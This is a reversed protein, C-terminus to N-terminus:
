QEYEDLHEAEYARHDEYQAERDALIALGAVAVDVATAAEQESAEQEAPKVVAVDTEVIPRHEDDEERAQREGALWEEATVRDAEEDVPRGRAALEDVARQAAERTAATEAYWLGRAEDILELEAREAELAALQEDATGSLAVDNREMDARLSIEHLRDGVWPPAWAEEREYARVRVLLAGDSLEAEERDAEPRGLARWAAHWAAHAETEGAKPAPGIAREEDEEGRLERYAAVRGARNEWRWRDLGSQPPEDLAEVAWRPRSLAAERGLDVARQDALEALQELRVQWAGGIPPVRARFDDAEPAAGRTAESIRYHLVSAANVAGDLSRASVVSRVTEKPDLGALEVSRLLRGLAGGADAALRAREDATLLGDATLEDFMREVRGAQALNVADTFLEILTRVSRASEASEELIALAAQETDAREVVQALVSLPTRREAVDGAPADPAASVTEVYATNRVQGRTLGPYLASLDTGPTAVFHGTDVTQGQAGHGTVAYGLALHKAVYDAPLVIRADPQGLPSVTLRGDATDIVRYLERNIPGRPNGMWGRLPRGNLRGQVIDGRGARVGQLGLEVTRLDDVVGRRVLEARCADSLKAAEDNTNVILLSRMGSVTDGLWGRMAKWTTMEASGGDILRGHRDYDLLAAQDGSRLRLSAPGEWGSRFRHVESLEYALGSSAVLEFAGGAGVAALQRHDGTLLLKAGSEEVASRIADLHATNAMGSEDVIVLDASGLRQRGVERQALFQAINVAELGEGRLVETAIESAALGIVHGGSLERWADNLVGVTWSKGAGAPGVLAEIRAGSTLVGLVAARQDAHLEAAEITREADARTFAIAGRRVAAERLAREAALQDPMAYRSSGPQEYVSRGNALRLDEPVEAAVQEDLRVAGAYGVPSIESAALARDTLTEILERVEAAPVGLRDPLAGGIERALDGRTWGSRKAQVAALATEMVRTPSFPSPDSPRASLAAEAVETLQSGVHAQLEANFRDLMEGRLEGDHSKAKRTAFTARRMLRDRELANPERGVRTSFEKCLKEAKESIKRRRVSFTDLIDQRIGLIERAKGDPRRAFEVGLTRSLHEEMTREGIAAAAGREAYMIKADITRFQGDSCEVRNLIANHIHLQPQNERSTHQFFSATVFGHADVWRGAAGGHHGVRSYGARDQLYDLMRRNGEWIAAEVARRHTAWHAALEPTTAQLEMRHFATHLVSVSKQVSFTADHFMVSKRVLKAARLHLLEAREPTANPERELLRALHSEADMFRGPRDGLTAAEGWSDRDRFREDRPDIFRAYLAEMDQHDVEGRLGLAAAGAGYWRGPPEGSTVAGTYYGERGSGVARTLYGADHGASITLM